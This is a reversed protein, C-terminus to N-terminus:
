RNAKESLLCVWSRKRKDYGIHHDNNLTNFVRNGVSEEVDIAQVIQQKTMGANCQITTIIKKRIQQEMEARKATFAQEGDMITQKWILLTSEKLIIRARSTYESKGKKKTIGEFAYITDGDKSEFREFRGHAIACRIYYFIMMMDPHKRESYFVIRNTDRKQPFKGGLGISEASKSMMELKTAKAFTANTRLDAQALLYDRLGSNKWVSKSWNRDKTSQGSSSTDVCPTGFVYFSLLESFAPTFAFTDKNQIWGKSFSVFIESM